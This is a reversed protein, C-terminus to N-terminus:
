GHVVLQQLIHWVKEHGVDPPRPAAAGGKSSEEADDKKSLVKLAIDLNNNPRLADEALSADFGM